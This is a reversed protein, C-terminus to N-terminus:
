RTAKGASRHIGAGGGTFRRILSCGPRPVQARDARLRCALRGRRHSEGRKGRLLVHRCFLDCRQPHARRLGTANGAPRFRTLRVRAGGALHVGAALCGPAPRRGPRAPTDDPRAHTCQGLGADLGQRRLGGRASAHCAKRIEAELGVALISDGSVAVAGPEYQHMEEDMTLVIANVLLLDASKTM